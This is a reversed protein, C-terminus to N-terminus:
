TAPPRPRWWSGARRRPAARRWRLAAELALLLLALLVLPRWRAAHATAAVVEDGRSPPEEWTPTTVSEDPDVNVSCVPDARESPTAGPEREARYHGPTMTDAFTILGREDPAVPRAVGEPTHITMPAESPLVWPEGVLVHRASAGGREGALYTITREALPLFGPRIPLDSWDRDISTTLLAVRGRGFARTLLAPAGNTFSVAVEAARTPDPELLYLRRARTGTLGLDGTLGRLAPHTLDVPALGETRAETRGPATGVVVAERLLLPLLAGLRDNYPRAEVRDGATIWLGMGREVAAAVHHAIDEAPARVNALILVDVGALASAGERRLREEFQEPALGRVDLARASETAALATALFFVEDHARMESPDGNVVTVQTRDSASLWLSIVDDGPMPDPTPGPELELSARRPGDAGTLTHTFEFSAPRAGTLEVEARAVKQDDVRLAVTVRRTDTITKSAEESLYRRASGRIRVARPDLERAPEWAAGDLGVHEPRPDRARREQGARPVDELGVAGLVPVPVIVIEDDLRPPLSGLGRDTRDGVAYIAREIGGPTAQLLAAAAALGSELTWAGGRPRPGPEDLWRALARRVRDPDASLEIRPGGPDSIVLGVRSGAPLSRTLDDVVERAHALLTEGDVRLEMSRSGDVLIIADHPTALVTLAGPRESIPRALALVILALLGVRLALLLLDRLRRRHTVVEDGAAVFRRSSLPIQRPRERGLLHALVPLALGVLGALMWPALLTM